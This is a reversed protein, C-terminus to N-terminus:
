RKTRYDSAVKGAAWGAVAGKAANYADWALRAGWSLRSGALGVSTAGASLGSAAGGVASAVAGGWWESDRVKWGTGFGYTIVGAAAGVAARGLVYALPGWEGRVEALADDNLSTGHPLIVAAPERASASTASSALLVVVLLLLIGKKM